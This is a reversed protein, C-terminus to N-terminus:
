LDLGCAARLFSFFEASLDALMGSVLQNAMLKGIRQKLDSEQIAQFEGFSLYHMLQTIHEIIKTRNLRERFTTDAQMEEDVIRSIRSKYEDQQRKAHSAITGM